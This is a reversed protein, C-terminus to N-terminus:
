EEKLEPLPRELRTLIETKVNAEIKTENYTRENYLDTRHTLWWKADNPNTPINDIIVKEVNYIATNNAADVDCKFQRYKGSKAKEGRTYWNRYTQFTIGVHGCAGNLSYGQRLAKCFQASLEPTLKSNYKAIIIVGM